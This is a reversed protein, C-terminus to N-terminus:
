ILTVPTFLLNKSPRKALQRGQGSKARAPSAARSKQEQRDYAVFLSAFIAMRYHLTDVAM